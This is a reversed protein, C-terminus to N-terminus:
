GFAVDVFDLGGAGSGLLSCETSPRNEQSPPIAKSSNMHNNGILEMALASLYRQQWPLFTAESLVSAVMVASVFFSFAFIECTWIGKASPSDLELMLRTSFSKEDLRFLRHM